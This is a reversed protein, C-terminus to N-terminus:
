ARKVYDDQTLKTRSLNDVMFEDTNGFKSMEDEALADEQEDDDNIFDDDGEQREEEHLREFDHM